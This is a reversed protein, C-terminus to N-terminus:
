RVQYTPLVVEVIYDVVDALDKETRRKAAGLAVVMFEIGYRSSVIISEVGRQGGGLRSLPRGAEEIRFVPIVEDDVAFPNLLQQGDGLPLDIGEVVFSFLRRLSPVRLAVSRRFVPGEVYAAARRDVVLRRAKDAQAGRLFSPELNAFALDADPGPSEFAIFGKGLADVVAAVEM